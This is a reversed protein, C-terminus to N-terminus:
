PLTITRTFAPPVASRDVLVSEVGDIRLRVPYPVGSALGEIVFSLEDTAIPHAAAAAERDGVILTAKQEPGVEPTTGVVFTASSGLVTPTVWDIRPAVVLPLENTTRRVGGDVLLVSIGYVGARLMPATAPLMVEIEGSSVSAPAIDRTIGHVGNRFRVATAGGLHHGLLSIQDGAAAEAGGLPVQLGTLAPYPSDVGAQVKVGRGDAGRRLVPVPARAPYERDILVVSARYANTPRYPRNIASWLKSLEELSMVEPTIKVLEVQDALDSGTLIDLPASLGTNINDLAKRVAARTLVPFEHLLQMAYGLLIEAHYDKAAYATLMYHLDLALPPSSIRGGAAGRSPLGENRWGQNPTVHYMFLNLRPPDESAIKILDPALATVAVNIGLLSSVSGDIMANDLLDKLVATVAAIALASSM